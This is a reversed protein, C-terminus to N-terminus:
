RYTILGEDGEQELHATSNFLSLTMRQRDFLLSTLSANKIVWTLRLATM